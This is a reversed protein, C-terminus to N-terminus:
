IQCRQPRMVLAIEFMAMLTLALQALAPDLLIAEGLHLSLFARVSWGIARHADQDRTVRWALAHCVLLGTCGFVWFVLGPGTVRDLSTRTLQSAILAISGFVGLMAYAASALVARRLGFHVPLTDYGTQRDAEVDKLYGIIVFVAYTGFMSVAAALLRVDLQSPSRVLAIAGIVPLLAVVFSNCAPGAWHRRKCPTYLLLGLVALASPIMVWASFACVLLASALLGVLSVWRVSQIRLEGRVLPRYPASLSDTDTQFTDTLAQGFGYALFLPVFVLMRELRSGRNALAEGVLGAAGSVFLLYPRMTTLYANLWRGSGVELKATAMM